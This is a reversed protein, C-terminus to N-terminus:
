TSAEDRMPPLGKEAREAARDRMQQSQRSM